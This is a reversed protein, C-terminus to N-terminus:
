RVRRFRVLFLVATAVVWSIGVWVTARVGPDVCAGAIVALEAAAFAIPLVPGLPARMSRRSRPVRRLLVVSALGTLAFFFADVVVVGTVLRDVGRSGALWMLGVSVGALLAIAPVPTGAGAHVRAFPAFFRGDHALALVLRP